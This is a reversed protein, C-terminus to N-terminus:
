TFEIRQPQDVEHGMETELSRLMRLNIATRGEIENVSDVIRRFRTFAPSIDDEIVSDLSSKFSRQSPMHRIKERFSILGRVFELLRERNEFSGHLVRIGTKFGNIRAETSQAQLEFANLLHRWEIPSTTPYVRRMLTAIQRIETGFENSMDREDLAMLWLKRSAHDLHNAVSEESFKTIAPVATWYGCTKTDVRFVSVEELYESAIHALQFSRGAFVESTVMGVVDSSLRTACAHTDRHCKNSHACPACHEKTQLIVSGHHYAGTRPFDSSGLSLEVVNTKTLAALHKISTDGSLLLKARRLLSFAGEFGLIALECRHGLEKLTTVMPELIARESDSGLIFVPNQPHRSAFIEIAAQFRVLGWNKKVDSTLAQVVLFDPRHPPASAGGVKEKCDFSSAANLFKAVEQEGKATPELPSAIHVSELGCAFRFIDTFHFTELSEADVQSNLHRFWSSGFTGRGQADFCLGIRKKAEILSMMWGSLRNHTLNIAIDYPQDSLADIWDSLHHYADFLPQNAQSLSSQLAERDFEIWRDVYPILCTAKKFQSNIVVDIVADPHKTRLGRLISSALVIDGIRLLSLVIIRM